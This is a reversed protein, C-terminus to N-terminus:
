VKGGRVFYNAKMPLVSGSILRRGEETTNFLHENAM